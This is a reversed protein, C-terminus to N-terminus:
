AEHSMEKRVERAEEEKGHVRTWHFRWASPCPFRNDYMFGWTLCPHLRGGDFTVKTLNKNETTVLVVEISM